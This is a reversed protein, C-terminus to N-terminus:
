KSVSRYEKAERTLLKQCMVFMVVVVGMLLAMASGIGLHMGELITEHIVMILSKTGQSPGGRTILNAQGYLNFSAIVTIMLVFFFVHRIEPMIIKKFKQWYNAGDISSAEYLQDDIENLANVFLMMNFGITWWVTAIVLTVWAFPMTELWPIRQTIFGLNYLLNNVYGSASNFLWLFIASVATVSVAYSMFFITRFVAKLKESLSDLALALLLSIFVLPIVSIGVFTLTNRLGLFFANGHISDPTLIRVFNDLGVFGANGTTLRITHLSAYVGYIFPTLWFLLFMILFPSFFLLSKWWSIRM